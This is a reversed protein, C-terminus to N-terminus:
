RTASLKPKILLCVPVPKGLVVGDPVTATGLVVGVPVTVTGFPVRVVGVPVTVTGLVVGDTVTVIGFPVRLPAGALTAAYLVLGAAAVVVTGAGTGAMELM